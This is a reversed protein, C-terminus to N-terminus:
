FGFEENQVPQQQPQQVPPQEGDRPKEKLIKVYAKGDKTKGPFAVCKGVGAIVGAFYPKDNKSMKAWLIGVESPDKQFAM